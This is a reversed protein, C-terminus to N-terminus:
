NTHGYSMAHEHSYNISAGRRIKSRIGKTILFFKEISVFRLTRLEHDENIILKLKINSNLIARM